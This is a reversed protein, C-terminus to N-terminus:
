KWLANFLIVLVGSGLIYAGTLIDRWKELSKLRKESNERLGDVSVHLSDLKEVLYKMKEDLRAFMTELNTTM